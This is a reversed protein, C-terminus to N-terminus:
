PSIVRFGQYEFIASAAKGSLFALFSAAEPKAGITLAAPYLIPRHSDDPFRGILSIDMGAAQGAQFDSGYVIGLPAEGRAVLDLVARVTGAPALHAAVQSWLGLNELAERGYQGAPVSTIQGIALRDGGLMQALDLQGSVARPPWVGAGILVLDNGLLDRRTGPQVAEAAVDMWEVSASIFVDAPAGQLIQQALRASADYAFVVDIGTEDTWVQAIPDMATSLSSAAFVTIDEALASIPSAFIMAAIMVPKMLWAGRINLRVYREDFPGDVSIESSVYRM